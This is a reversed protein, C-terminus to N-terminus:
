KMGKSAAYAVQGMQGDYAAISATNIIVGRQNDKSLENKGISQAAYRMVNFTGIVNVM